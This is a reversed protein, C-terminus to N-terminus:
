TKAVHGSTLPEPQRYWLAEIKDLLVRAVKAKSAIGLPEASGGRELVWARVAQRGFPPRATSARQALVLDLQKDRLKRAARQVATKGTELAFGVRIQGSRRPLRGIIDPTARLSLTLRGRRPRKVPQIAAPRFDAVAAAMIVVDARRAERRLATEMDRAQEVPVVRARSPLAESGPGSIVTVRHGRRLSEEALCAGMYGSSYNSLFRVPDIPERTPGATIVIRLSRTM